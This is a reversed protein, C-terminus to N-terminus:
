VLLDPMALLTVYIDMIVLHWRLRLVIGNLVKSYRIASHHHYAVDRRLKLPWPPQHKTNEELPRLSCIYILVNFTTM